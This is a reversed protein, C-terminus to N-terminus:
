FNLKKTLKQLKLNMEYYIISLVVSKYQNSFIFLKNQQQALSCHPKSKNFFYMKIFISISMCLILYIYTKEFNIGLNVSRVIITTASHHQCKYFQISSFVKM